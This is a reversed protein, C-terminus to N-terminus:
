TIRNRVYEEVYDVKKPPHGNRSYVDGDDERHSMFQPFWTKRATLKIKRKTGRQLSEDCVKKLADVSPLVKMDDPLNRSTSMPFFFLERKKLKLVEGQVFELAM